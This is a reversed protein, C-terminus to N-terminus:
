AVARLGAALQGCLLDAEDETNYYHPSIRLVADIRRAAYDLPGDAYDMSSVNVKRERLYQRLEAVRPAGGALALGIVGSRVQPDIPELVSIGPQGRLRDMLYTTLGVIRRHADEIGVEILYELAAALGIEAAVNREWAEFRRADARMAVEERILYNDFKLDSTVLGVTVPDIRESTGHRVYLFGSGRPGRLWKRGSATLAHCALNTVDVPIQGVSQCADVLLLAETGAVMRGIKEVPNVGGFHGAAHTIAVLRTRETLCREFDDIDITGDPRSAVIRMRAGTRLALRRLSLLNIGYEIRSTLIEDGPRLSLSAVFETWARSASDAFAIEDPSCGLLRAAATYMTRRPQNVQAAEYGGLESELELHRVQADRVAVPPLASGCNNFHAVAEVGPTERRLEAISRM